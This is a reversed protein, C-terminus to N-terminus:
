FSSMQSFIDRVIAVVAPGLVVLVTAPLICFIMPFLIKISAKTAQEEAHQRRRIRVEDAQARMVPALSMGVQDAQMVAAVFGSLDRVQVRQALDHLAARRHKGIQMEQLVRALEDALPGRTKEVLKSLGADFSLGAEMCVTILDLAGPLAREVQRKRANVRSDIWTGSGVRGGMFLGAVIILGMTDIGGSPAVVFLVYLLPLGLMAVGRLALYSEVSLPSGARALDLEASARLKSPATSAAARVLTQLGPALIRRAFSGALARRRGTSATRRTYPALRARLQQQQPPFLALVALATTVFALVHLLNPYAALTM